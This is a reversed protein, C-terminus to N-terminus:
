ARRLSCVCEIHSTQPFMDILTLGSMSYGASALQRCDRALSVPDCSVYRIEAPGIRALGERAAASLGTRPPDCLVLEPRGEPRALWKEVSMAQVAQGHALNRRALGAALADEEVLVIREFRGALLAAFLGVGGYLDWALGGGRGELVCDAFARLMALNGQFFARADCALKLGAAELEINSDRGAAAAREASCLIAVNEGPRGGGRANDAALFANAPACAVLCREIPVVDSGRRRLFGLRGSEGRRFRMRCRYGYEPSELRPISDLAIRGIRAFSERVISEKQDLQAGYDLHMLDCGGCAGYYPCAPVRRSPGPSEISVIEAREYDRRAETSEVELIDGPAALPIFVSKGDLRALGDGGAVLKEIGVRM